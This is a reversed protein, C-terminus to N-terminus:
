EADQYCAHQKRNMSKYCDVDVRYTETDLSGDKHYATQVPCFFQNGLVGCGSVSMSLMWLLLLNFPKRKKSRRWPM